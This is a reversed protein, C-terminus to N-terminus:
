QCVETECLFLIYEKNERKRYANMEEDKTNKM